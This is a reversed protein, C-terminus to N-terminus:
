LKFIMGIVILGSYALVREAGFNGTWIIMIFTFLSLYLIMANVISKPVDRFISHGFSNKFKTILFVMKLGTVTRHFDSTIRGNRAFLISLFIIGLIFFTTAM